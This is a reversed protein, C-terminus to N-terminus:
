ILGLDYARKVAAARSPVELKRYIAGLHHGVTRPSLYLREAVGADTLGEAVLGIVEIERESLENPLATSTTKTDQQSELAYAFVDELPLLEGEGWAKAFAEEDMGAQTTVVAHDHDPRECTPLPTGTRERLTKAGGFLKAAREPRGRSATEALAELVSAARWLDGLERHADLSETLLEEAREYEGRRYALLGLQNLSWAVGDQYSGERSLSLSEELMAEARGHNGAYLAASGLNILSSLIGGTDGVARHMSLARACLQAAREYEGTLWAVLGLYDLARAVGQEDGLERWLALSEEHLTEAREYNGQERALGGLIETVEAIGHQNALQRYLSLAEELRKAAWGYDCQLLTLVGSGTLARARPLSSGGGKSLAGELWTRGEEYYGRVECFSGLASSLRLSAEPEGVKLSWTMAARLNDMETDLRDIWWKQEAASIEPEAREALGLFYNAHRDRISGEEEAGELKGAAYQVVTELMRYRAEDDGAEGRGALVLSKYVLQSLLELVEARELSDGSCIEEAGDLSFGGAFVSLRRFLTREEVSLLEHSWDITARLTRQRPLAVRSGRTLLLFCDDLRSAIQSPQLMGASAAALEIALPIGDLRGCVRTVAAANEETLEFGPAVAAAREVFLRVAEHRMLQEPLIESGPDPLSLSPVLWAWEGPIRLAERSTALIKLGPCSRLLTDALAACGEILHECNDLILLAEKYELHNLLEETPSVGTGRRDKLRLTRAASEPILEADSLAALEVWFVGDQFDNELGTAVELALRTKGCGGPGILTLLRGSALSEEVEALERERGVFSSSQLPM